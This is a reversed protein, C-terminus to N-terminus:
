HARYVPEWPGEVVMGLCSTCLEFIRSFQQEHFEDHDQWRKWMIYQYSRVPNLANEM